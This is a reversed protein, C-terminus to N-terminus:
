FYLRFYNTKFSFLHSLWGKRGPFLSRILQIQAPLFLKLNCWNEEQSGPSHLVPSLGLEYLTWVLFNHLITM